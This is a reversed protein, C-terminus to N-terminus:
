TLVPTPFIILEQGKDRIWIFHIILFYKYHLALFLKLRNNCNM